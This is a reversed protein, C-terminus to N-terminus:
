ETYLQLRNNAGEIFMFVEYDDREGDIYQEYQVIGDFTLLSNYSYIHTDINFINVMDSLKLGNCILKKSLTPINYDTLVNEWTYTHDLLMKRKISYFINFFYKMQASLAYDKSFGNVMETEYHRIWIAKFKSYYKRRFTLYYSQNYKAALTIM